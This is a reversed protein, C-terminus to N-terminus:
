CKMSNESLTKDLEELKIVTGDHRKHDPMAGAPVGCGPPICGYYKLQAFGSTRIAKVASWVTELTSGNSVNLRLEKPAAPDKATHTLFLTVGKDDDSRIAGLSKGPAAFEELEFPIAGRRAILRLELYNQPPKGGCGARCTAALTGVGVVTLMERRNM